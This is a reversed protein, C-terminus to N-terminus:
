RGINLPLRKGAGDNMGYFASCVEPWTLGTDTLPVQSGPEYPNTIIIHETTGGPPTVQIWFNNNPNGGVGQNNYWSSNTINDNTPM